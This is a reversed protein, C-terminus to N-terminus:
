SKRQSRHLIMEKRQLLELKSRKERCSKKEHTLKYSFRTDWCSSAYWDERSYFQICGM